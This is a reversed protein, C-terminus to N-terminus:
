IDFTILFIHHDSSGCHHGQVYLLQLVVVAINSTSDFCCPKLILKDVPISLKGFSDFILMFAIAM